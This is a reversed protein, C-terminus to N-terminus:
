KAGKSRVYAAELWQVKFDFLRKQEAPSMANWAEAPYGEAIEAILRQMLERERRPMHGGKKPAAPKMAVGPHRRRAVVARQRGLKRATM